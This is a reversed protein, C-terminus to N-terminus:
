FEHRKVRSSVGCSINKILNWVGTMKHEMDSYVCIDRLSKNKCRYPACVHFAPGCITKNEIDSYFWAVTFIDGRLWFNREIKKQM